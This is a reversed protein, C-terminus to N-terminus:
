PSIHQRVLLNLSEDIGSLHRLNMSVSRDRAMPSYALEQVDKPQQRLWGVFEPKAADEKWGPHVAELAMENVREELQEPTVGAPAQQRAALESRLSRAQHEIVEQIADAVEPYDEKLLALKEPSNQAARIEQVSPQSQARAQAAQQERTMQSRIGGIHGEVNRLRNAMAANQAELGILKQKQFESLGAYPDDEVEPLAAAQAAASDQPLREIEHTKTSGSEEQNDLQEWYAKAEAETLQNETTM